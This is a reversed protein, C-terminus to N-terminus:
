ALANKFPQFPSGCLLYSLNGNLFLPRDSVIKIRIEPPLKPFLLFETAPVAMDYQILLGRPSFVLMPDITLDIFAEVKIRRPGSRVAQKSAQLAAKKAEAAAKAKAIKEKREAERAAYEAAAEAREKALKAQKKVKMDARKQALMDKRLEYSVQQKAKREMISSTHHHQLDHSKPLTIGRSSSLLDIKFNHLVQIVKEPQM